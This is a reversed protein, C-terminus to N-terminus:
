EMIIWQWLGVLRYTSGSDLLHLRYRASPFLVLADPTSGRSQHAVSLPM